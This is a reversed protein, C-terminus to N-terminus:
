PDEPLPLGAPGATVFFRVVPDVQPPGARLDVDLLNLAARVRRTDEDDERRFALFGSVARALAAAPLTAALADIDPAENPRFSLSAALTSFQRHIGDLPPTERVDRLAHLALSVPRASDALVQDAERLLPVVERLGAHVRRAVDPTWHLSSEPAPNRSRFDLAIPSDGQDNRIAADAAFAYLTSAGFLAECAIETAQLAVQVQISPRYRGDEIDVLQQGVAIAVEQLREQRALFRERVASRAVADSLYELHLAARSPTEGTAGAPLDLGAHRPYAGAVDSAMLLADVCRVIDWAHPTVLGSRMAPTRGLMQEWIPMLRGELADCARVLVRLEESMVASELMRGQEAVTAPDQGAPLAGSKLRLFDKLLGAIASQTVHFDWRGAHARAHQWRHAPWGREKGEMAATIWDDLVRLQAERARLEGVPATRVPSDAHGGGENRLVRVHRQIDPATAAVTQEVEVRLPHLEAPPLATLREGIFDAARAALLDFGAHGSEMGAPLREPSLPPLGATHFHAWIFSTISNGGDSPSM